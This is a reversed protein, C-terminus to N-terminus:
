LLRTIAVVQLSLGGVKGRWGDCTNHPSKVWQSCSGCASFRLGPTGIEFDHTLEANVVASAACAAPVRTRSHCPALRGGRARAFRGSKPTTTRFGRATTRVRRGVSIAHTRQRTEPRFLAHQGPTAASRCEALIGNSKTPLNPSGRFRAHVESSAPQRSLGHIAPACTHV